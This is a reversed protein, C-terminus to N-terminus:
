YRRNQLKLLEEKLRKKMLMNNTLERDSSLYIVSILAQLYNEGVKKVYASAALSSLVPISMLPTVIIGLIINTFIKSMFIREVKIGALVNLDEMMKICIGYIMPICGGAIFGIEHAKNSYSEICKNAKEKIELIRAYKQVNLMKLKDELINMKLGDYNAMIMSLLNDIGYSNILGYRTKYDEALVRVIRIEPIEKRIHGEIDAEENDICQTIVIFFPIEYDIMLKKILDAECKEFRNSRSNICFLVVTIDNDNEKLKTEIILASIEKLTMDTIEQDIELGVTDYLNVERGIYGYNSKNKNDKSALLMNKSYLKNKKTVSQGKGTPALKENLIANILTSKGVGTKGMIIMNLKDM